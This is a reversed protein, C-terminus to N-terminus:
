VQRQNFFGMHHNYQNESTTPFQNPQLPMFSQAFNDGRSTEEMPGISEVSTGSYNTNVSLSPSVLFGASPRQDAKNELARTLLNMIDSKVRMKELSSLEKMPELLSLVFHTDADDEKKEPKKSFRESLIQLKKSEIELFKDNDSLGRKNGKKETPKNPKQNRNKTTQSIDLVEDSSDNEFNTKLTNPEATVNCVDVINNDEDNSIDAPSDVTSKDGLNEYNVSPINGSSERPILVNRLFDMAEFYPWNDDRKAGDGSKKELRTKLKRRYSDRLNQWMKQATTGAHSLFLFLIPLLVPLFLFYSYFFALIPIVM